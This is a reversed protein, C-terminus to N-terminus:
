FAKRNAIEIRAISLYIREAYHASTDIPVAMEDAKIPEKIVSVAEKNPM